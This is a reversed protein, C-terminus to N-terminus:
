GSVCHLHELRVDRRRCRCSGWAVQGVVGRVERLRQHVPADETELAPERQEVRRVPRAAVAAQEGSGRRGTRCLQASAPTEPTSGPIMPPMIAKSVILVQQVDAAIIPWYRSNSPWSM